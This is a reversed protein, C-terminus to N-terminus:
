IAITTPWSRWYESARPGIDLKPNVSLSMRRVAGAICNSIGANHPETTITVGVAHGNQVAACVTVHMSGPTGCGTIYNGNNLVSAFQGATLDAQGKPGGM